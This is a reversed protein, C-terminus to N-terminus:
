RKIELVMDQEEELAQADFKERSMVFRGRNGLLVWNGTVRTADDNVEGAYRVGHAHPGGQYRKVFGDEVLEREIAAVTGIMKPDDAAIFGALPLRLLAADLAPDEYAQTFTNRRADFGRAMVEDRVEAATLGGPRDRRLGDGRDGGAGARVSPRLGLPARVPDGRPPGVELRAQGVPPDRVARRRGGEDQGPGPRAHVVLQAREADRHAARVGERAQVVRPDPDRHARRLDGILQQGCETLHGVSVGRRIGPVFATWGPM